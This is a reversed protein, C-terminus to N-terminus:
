RVGWAAVERQSVLSFPLDKQLDMELLPPIQEETLGYMQQFDRWARVVQGRENVDSMPTVFFAEVAGPLAATMAATSIVIENNRARYDARALQAELAEKLMTPPYSCTWDHGVEHCQQGKPYCGPICTEGDGGLPTCVHNEDMSNGDVPYACYVETTAPNLVVGGTGPRRDSASASGYYTTRLDTNLISTAWRDSFKRCWSHDGTM